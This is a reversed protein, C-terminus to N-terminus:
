ETFPDKQQTIFANNNNKMEIFLLLPECNKIVGSTNYRFENSLEFSRWITVSKYCLYLSM